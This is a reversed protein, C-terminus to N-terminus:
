SDLTSEDKITNIQYASMFLPITFTLVSLNDKPNVISMIIALMFVFCVYGYWSDLKHPKYFLKFVTKYMIVYGVLGILGFKGLSDLLFSHGGVNNSGGWIPSSLFSDLSKQMLDKRSEMDGGTAIREGAFFNGLDSLREALIPSEKFLEAMSIFLDGLVLRGLLFVAIIAVILRKIDSQTVERKHIWLIMCFLFLLLATTYQSKMVVYGFLAVITVGIVINISRSKSLFILMPIILILSYIFSFSGINMSVYQSYLENNDEVITTALDRCANPFIVLGSITTISTVVYSAIVIWFIIKQKRQDITGVIGLLLLPWLFIQSLGYLAIPINDMGFYVIQLIYVMMMPVVSMIVRSSRIRMISMIYLLLIVGAYLMAPSYFGLAPLTNHLAYYLALIIFLFDSSSLKSNM